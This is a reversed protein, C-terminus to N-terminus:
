LSMVGSYLATQGEDFTFGLITQENGGPNATRMTLSGEVGLKDTVFGRTTDSISNLFTGATGAPVSAAIAAAMQALTVAQSASTAAVLGSIQGAVTIGGPFISPALNIADIGDCYIIATLGNPVVVAAGAATRVSLSAGAANRIWYVAKKSPITVTATATLAGTFYFGANKDDATTVYNTSTVIYDTTLVIPKVSGIIQALGRVVENLKDDGWSNVNTGRAQQRLGYQDTPTDVM